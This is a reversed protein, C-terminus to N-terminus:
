STQGSDVISANDIHPWHGGQKSDPVVLPLNGNGKWNSNNNNNNQDNMKTQNPIKYRLTPQM